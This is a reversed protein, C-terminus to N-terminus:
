WFWSVKDGSRNKWGFMEIENRKEERWSMWKMEVGGDVAAATAILYNHGGESHLCRSLCVHMGTKGKREMEIERNRRRKEKGSREDAGVM